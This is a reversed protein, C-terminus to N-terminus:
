DINDILSYFNINNDTNPYGASVLVGKKNSAVCNVVVQEALPYDSFNSIVDIRSGEGGEEVNWKYISGDESGSILYISGNRSDEILCQDVLHQSNLHGTYKIIEQEKTLDM